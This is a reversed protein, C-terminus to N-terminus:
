IGFYEAFLEIIQCIIEDDVDNDELISIIDIKVDKISAIVIDLADNSKEEKSM